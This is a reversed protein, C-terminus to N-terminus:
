KKDGQKIKSEFSDVFKQISESPAEEFSDVDVKKLWKDIADQPINFMEILEKVRKIQEQTALELVKVEKEIDEKGYLEIFTQYDLPKVMGKPMSEIRSKKVEFIRQGNKESTEIWLDLDYELKDYGDYTSDVNILEGNKREWKDKYHCILIVNMDLKDLWRMLQRTPRNAEKKDRGFDNGIKEEAIAAELLYIKTFSDIILNKFNHKTTALTKVSDILLKFDQSGEAQGVFVSNNKKLLKQYQPRDAGDECAWYYTDPFNCAFYTKGTGSKGSCIMKARKTKTETPKRGPLGM